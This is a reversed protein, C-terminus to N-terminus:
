ILGAAREGLARIAKEAEADDAALSFDSFEFGPGVSCSVLTFEGRPEAAQWVGAPVVRSPEMGPGYPGVGGRTLRGSEPDFCLLELPQGELYNWVEDSRVRHWRSKQGETLLFYISTLAM